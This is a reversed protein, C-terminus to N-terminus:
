GGDSIAPNIIKKKRPASNQKKASSTNREVRQIPQQSVAPGIRSLSISYGPRSSGGYCYCLMSNSDGDCEFPGMNYQHRHGPTPKFTVSIKQALPKQDFVKEAIASSGTITILGGESTKYVGSTQAAAPISCSISLVGLVIIAIKM